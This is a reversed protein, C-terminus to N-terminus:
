KEKSEKIEQKLGNNVAKLIKMISDGNGTIAFLLCVVTSYIIAPIQLFIFINSKIKKM